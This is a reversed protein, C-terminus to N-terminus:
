KIFLVGIGGWGQGANEVFEEYRFRPNTKVEDWLDKVRCNSIPAHLAIDHFAIVGGKRVLPSYLEFDKKVGEYAHDADIFLFDIPAGKLVARLRDVMEPKQSDGRLLDIHQRKSAFRRYFPEKWRPYAWINEGGPLDISVLHADAAALRAWIFFTGGRSTGIEVVTKPELKKVIQAMNLIEWHVQSPRIFGGLGKDAFTIAEEPTYHKETAAFLQMSAIPYYALRLPEFSRVIARSGKKVFGGVGDKKLIRRCRDAFSEKMLVTTM